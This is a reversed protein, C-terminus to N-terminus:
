TISVVAVVILQGMFRSMEWSGGRIHQESKWQIFMANTVCRQVIVTELIRAKIPKQMSFKWKVHVSQLEAKLDRSFIDFLLLFLLTNPLHM